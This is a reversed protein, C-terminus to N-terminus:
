PRPLTVTPILPTIAAVAGADTMGPSVLELISDTTDRVWQWLARQSRYIWKESIPPFGDSAHDNGRPRKFTDATKGVLL